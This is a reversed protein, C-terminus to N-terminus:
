IHTTGIHHSTQFDILQENLEHLMGPINKTLTRTGLNDYIRRQYLKITSQRAAADQHSMYRGDANKSRMMNM